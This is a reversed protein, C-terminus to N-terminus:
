EAELDDSRLRKSGVGDDEGDSLGDAWDGTSFNCEETTRKVAALIASRVDDQKEEQAKFGTTMQESIMCMTIKLLHLDEQMTQLSQLESLQTKLQANERELSSNGRKLTNKVTEAEEIERNLISIANKQRQNKGQIDTLHRQTKQLLKKAEADAKQSEHLAQKTENFMIDLNRLDDVTTANSYRAMAIPKGVSM